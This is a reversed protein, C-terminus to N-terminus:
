TRIRRDKSDEEFNWSECALVEVDGSFKREIRDRFVGSKPPLKKNTRM